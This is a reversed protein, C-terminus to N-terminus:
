RHYVVPIDIDGIGIRKNIAVIVIVAVEVVHIVVIDIAIVDIRVVNVSVVEICIVDIAVVQIGIVNVTVVEVIPGIVEITIVGRRVEVLLVILLLKLILIM